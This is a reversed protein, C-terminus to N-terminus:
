KVQQQQKTANPGVGAAGLQEIERQKSSHKSKDKPAAEEGSELAFMRMKEAFTLKEPGTKGAQAQSLTKSLQQEALRRARPDRYVEQAGIVGPTSTGTLLLQQQQQQEMMQTIQHHQQQSSNKPPTTGAGASSLM